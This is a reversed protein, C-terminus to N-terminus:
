IHKHFFIYELKSHGELCHVPHMLTLWDEVPVRRDSEEVFCPAHQHKELVDIVNAPADNGKAIDLWESFRQANLVSLCYTNAEADLLVFDGEANM